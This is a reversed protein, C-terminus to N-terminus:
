ISIKQVSTRKFRLRTIHQWSFLSTSSYYLRIIGYQVVILYIGSTVAAHRPAMISHLTSSSLSVILNKNVNHGAHMVAGRPFYTLLARQRRRIGKEMTQQHSDM